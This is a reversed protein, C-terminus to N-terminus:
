RGLLDEYGDNKQLWSAVFPCDPALRYPTDARLQDLTSTVLASGLGKERRNRDVETHTLHITNDQVFYDIHGAYDGDIRLEYRNQEPVNAVSTAM